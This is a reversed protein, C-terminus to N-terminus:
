TSRALSATEAEPLPGLHADPDSLIRVLEVAGDRANIGDDIREDYSIRLPLRRRVAARGGEVVLEERIRGAVVFISCTGYEFLHHYGSDMDLSGLNAIFASTYLPDGEIFFGPLLNHGDLARLLWAGLVLGPRPLLDFLAFERDAATPRGSRNEEIAANVRRTFDAFSEGERCEIKVTALAAGRDRAKRKMAFSVWRGRREYLRQGAVFRNMRPVRRLTEGMAAAFIHTIDAECCTRARAAYRELAEVDVSAEYYFASENRGPMIAFMMRRYPHTPVPEGDPRSRKLGALLWLLVLAGAFLLAPTM